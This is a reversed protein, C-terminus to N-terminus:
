LVWILSSFILQILIMFYGIQKETFKGTRTFIHTISYIKDYMSHVKGNKYCGYSQKRFKGRLKLFFEIFFPISIILAAKEVNGIIAIVAILAGLLYTLSDGPLIQAPYKNYYYFAILSVFSVLAILSAIYGGNVYTYLGLMGIYVIGMGTEMGNFGALMNVMNAAGVVGIPILVLPYILGIDIKGLIPFFMFKHEKYYHLVEYDKIFKQFKNRIESIFKRLEVDDKVQVDLELDAGNILENFDLINPHLHCFSKIMEWNKEDVGKLEFHVKYYKYGIRDLDIMPKYAKIIENQKLRKMRAKIINVSLDAKKSIELISLESKLSRKAM